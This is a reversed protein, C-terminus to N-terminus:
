ADLLIRICDARSYQQNRRFGDPDTCAWLTRRKGPRRLRNGPGTPRDLSGTYRSLTGVWAGEAYVEWEDSGYRRPRLTVTLDGPDGLRAKVTVVKEPADAQPMERYELQRM